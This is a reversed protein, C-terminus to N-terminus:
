RRGFFLLCRMIRKGRVSSTTTTARQHAASPLESPKAADITAVDAAGPDSRDNRTSCAEVPLGTRNLPRSARCCNQTVPMERRTLQAVERAPNMIRRFGRADDFNVRASHNGRKRVSGSSNGDCAGLPRFGFERQTDFSAGALDRDVEFVLDDRDEGLEAAVAAAAVALGAALITEFKRQQTKLRLVVVFEQHFLTASPPNEGRRGAFAQQQM